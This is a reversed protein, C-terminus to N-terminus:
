MLIGLRGGQQRFRPLTTLSNTKARKGFQGADIAPM